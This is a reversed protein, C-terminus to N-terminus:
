DTKQSEKVENELTESIQKQKKSEDFGKSIRNKLSYVKKLTKKRM